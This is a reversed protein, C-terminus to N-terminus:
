VLKHENKQMNNKDIKGLSRLNVVLVGKKTCFCCGVSIFLFFAYKEGNKLFKQKNQLICYSIWAM